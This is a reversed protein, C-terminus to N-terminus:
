LKDMVPALRRSLVQALLIKVIDPIVFPLITLSLTKDLTMVGKEVPFAVMFWAAGFIYLAALGIFLSALKWKPYKEFLLYLIGMILFGLKYGGTVDVLASLGGKFGAFVPLGAAGLLLYALIAYTGHQGGLLLLALAVAFTQLTFPVATPVSIWACICILAAFFAVLVLDKTKM